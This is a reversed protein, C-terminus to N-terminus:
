EDGPPLGLERVRGTIMEELQWLAAPLGEELYGYIMISKETSETDISIRRVGTGVLEPNTYSTDLDAIGNESIHTTLSDYFSKGATTNYRFLVSDKWDTKEYHLAGDSHFTYYHNRFLSPAVTGSNTQYVIIGSDVDVPDCPMPFPKVRSSVHMTDGLGYKNSVVVQYTFTSDLATSDAQILLYPRSCDPSSKSPVSKKAMAIKCPINVEVGNECTPYFWCDSMWVSHSMWDLTVWPPNGILEVTASDGEYHFVSLYVYQTLGETPDNLIETISDKKGFYPGHTKMHIDVSDVNVEVTDSYVKEMFVTDYLFVTDQSDSLDVFRTITDTYPLTNIISIIMGCSEGLAVPNTSPPASDSFVTDYLGDSGKTLLLFLTDPGQSSPYHVFTTHLTDSSHARYSVPQEVSCNSFLFSLFSFFSFLGYTTKKM